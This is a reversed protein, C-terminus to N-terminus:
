PKRSEILSVLQDVRSPDNYAAKLARYMLVDLKKAADLKIMAVAYKPPKTTKAWRSATSRDVGCFSAIETFNLRCQKILEAFEAPTLDLKIGHGRTDTKSNESM